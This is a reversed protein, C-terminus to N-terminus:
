RQVIVKASFIRNNIDKIHVMYIGANLGSVNITAKSSNPTEIMIQRGTVDTLTIEAIASEAEITIDNSAPNPYLQVRNGSIDTVSLYHSGVKLIATASDPACFGSNVWLTVLYVGTDGYRHQPNTLMSGNLDGFTWQSTLTTDAASTNTFHFTDNFVSIYKDVTFNAVPQQLVRISFSDTISCASSGGYNYVLSHWGASASGPNFTNGTTGNGSWTGGAPSVQLNFATASECVIPPIGFTINPNSDVVFTLSQSAACMGSDSYTLQVNYTGYALSATPVKYTNGTHVSDWLPLWQQGRSTVTGFFVATDSKCVTDPYFLNLQPHAIEIFSTAYAPCALSDRYEFKFLTSETPYATVQLQKQAFGSWGYSSNSSDTNQVQATLVISDGYCIKSAQPSVIALPKYTTYRVSDIVECNNADTIKVWIINTGNSNYSWNLTSQNNGNMWEYKYPSFGGTKKPAIVLTDAWCHTTDAGLSANFFYSAPIYFSDTYTRCGVGGLNVAIFHWGTDTIVGQFTNSNSNITKNASSLAWNLIPIPKSSRNNITFTFNRCSINKVIDFSDPIISGLKLYYTKENKGPLPCVNDKVFITFQFKTIDTNFMASDAGFCVQIIPKNSETGINTFTAGQINTKYSFSVTDTTDMDTVYVNFCYNGSNCLPVSPDIRDFQPFKNTTGPLVIIQIDRMVEGIKTLVGGIVRWENVKLVVVTVQNVSTPRFFMNSTLSDFHFGAPWSRNTIPFGQFTLPKEASWSGSYPILDGHGELPTILEYTLLDGDVDTATNTISYDKVAFLLFTPMGVFEPSSNTICKNLRTEIYYNANAAGTNISGNRVSQQWALILECSSISSLDIRGAFVHQEIGYTYTGSCRSQISCGSLIGTVDTVSILTLLTTTKINGSIDRIELPSNSLPIGNCDRYAKVTVDYINTSVYKYTIQASMLHSAKAIVVFGIFAVSLLLKKMFNYNSDPM